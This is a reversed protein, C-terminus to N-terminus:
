KHRLLFGLVLGVGGAIMLSKGPQRRVYGRVEAETQEYDFDRVYDASQQLIDAAERGYGAIESTESFSVTKERIAGALRDIKEAVMNKAKDMGSCGGDSIESEGVSNFTRGDKDILRSYNGMMLRWSYTIDNQGHM